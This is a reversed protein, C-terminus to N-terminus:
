RQQLAEQFYFVYKNENLTQIISSTLYKMNNVEYIINNIHRIDFPIDSVRQTILIINQADKFTHAIGLEYFVNPNQSTLDAIIYNARLIENLIKNMIPKSGLIEDARNCVYGNDHLSKKIQGYIMDFEESFPMLIFCRNKEIPIKASRFQKPYITYNDM